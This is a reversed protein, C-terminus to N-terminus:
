SPTRKSPSKTKLLGENLASQLDRIDLLTELIAELTKAQIVSPETFPSVGDNLAGLIEQRSRMM